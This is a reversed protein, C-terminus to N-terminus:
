YKRDQKVFKHIHIVKVKMEAVRKTLSLRNIYINIATDLHVNHTLPTGNQSRSPSTVVAIGVVVVAATDTVGLVGGSVSLSTAM